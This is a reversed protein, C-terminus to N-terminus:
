ENRDFVHLPASIGLGLEWYTLTSHQISGIESSIFCTEARHYPPSKSGKVMIGPRSANLLLVHVTTTIIIRKSTSFKLDSTAISSNPVKPAAVRCWCWCPPKSLTKYM